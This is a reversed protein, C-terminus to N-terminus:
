LSQAREILARANALSQRTVEPGSVLRAIEEASEQKSLLVIQSETREKKGLKRVQFHSDAYAAVQALHSICLVQFTKALDKMKRGVVDAVKGSIGSDIEDFVLLCSDAGAALARKLALMIRSIEGGSAIKHLPFAPEGPNAALLFLAKESGAESLSSLVEAVEAFLRQCEAGFASLDLGALTKSVDLLDVSLRAGPMFLQQLETEVKAKVVAAAKQRQSKLKAALSNLKKASAALATLKEKLASETGTLSALEDKLKQYEALLSDVDSVSLKRFLGQYGALRGQAKELEGEDLTDAQASQVVQYSLDDVQDALLKAQAAIAQIQPDEVKLAGLVRAIEWLPHSLADGSAGQEVYTQAVTLAERWKHYHTAKQCLALADDYDSKEPAFKEIEDLRFSLYDRERLRSQFSAVTQYVERFAGLCQHYLEEYATRTNKDVLFQDLYFGHQSADLLRQNEHQGFIDILAQGMERLSAMTVPVDNIWAQSKGTANIQRRILVLAQDEEIDVPIGLEQIATLARSRRHLDFQAAVTAQKCGSRVTEVSSKAGTLLGLAKILISKGAGTEGTIVNFGGTFDIALSEIVALGQINLHTLLETGWLLRANLFQNVHLFYLLL